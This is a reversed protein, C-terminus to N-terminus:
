ARPVKGNTELIGDSAELVDFYAEDQNSRMNHHTGEPDKNIGIKINLTLSMFIRTFLLLLLLHITQGRCTVRKCAAM